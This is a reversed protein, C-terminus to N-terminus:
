VRVTWSICNLVGGQSALRTCRIPVVTAKPCARELVKCAEEDQRAGYAPVVILSGVRLYNTYNGVASSIETGSRRPFSYPLRVTALRERNLVRLLRRGYDPDVESYDNVAVLDDALFRVVGDSHGIIDGPEAPVFICKDTLFLAELRARFEQRRRIRNERFAKDTLVVARSSAVVNGGDLIIESKAFAGLNRVQELVENGTILHEYKGRLYNPYYRFKVFHRKSIQVASYDRIWIDATGELFRVPVGHDRLLCSLRDALGPYRRALLGSFHVLNTKWDPIM